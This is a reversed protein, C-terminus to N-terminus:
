SRPEIGAYAPTEARDRASIFPRGLLIGTLSLLQSVVILCAVLWPQGGLAAVLATAIFPTPGAIIAGQLERSSSLGSSRYEARFLAPMLVTHGAAGPSWGLVTMIVSALMVLALQGTQLIMFYPFAFLISGAIGIFMVRKAGIRDALLGFAACFVINAVVIALNVFLADSSTLGIQNVIYAIGFSLVVFGTANLGTPLLFGAVFNRPSARFARAMAVLANARAPPLQGAAREAQVREFEPSEVMKRRLLLGIVTLVASLLFPVRWGWEVFTEPALSSSIVAFLISALLTGGMGASMAISSFFGKRKHTASENMITIAGALEAGAGFGQTLRLLVLLAPAWVGITAFGPILGMLTTSVGIMLISLILVPRRGIRDGLAGLVIGGIPRAIFGVAFTAFAALVGTFGTAQPFFVPAIVLGAVLGYLGYDYWEIVTGIGGALSTRISQQRTPGSPQRREELPIQESSTSM